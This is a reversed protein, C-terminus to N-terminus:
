ERFLLRPALPSPISSPILQSVKKLAKLILRIRCIHGISVDVFPFGEKITLYQNRGGAVLIDTNRDKMIKLLSKPTVDEVLPADEGLIEKMKEEDEFSSKKTGIAVIEIGLDMLASIFSWSKVGGTYLVARKGKLHQYYKLREALNREERAIISEVKERLSFGAAVEPKQSRIESKQLKQEILRMAKSM